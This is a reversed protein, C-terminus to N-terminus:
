PKRKLFSPQIMLNAFFQYINFGQAAFQQSLDTDACRDEARERKTRRRERITKRVDKEITPLFVMLKAVEEDSLIKSLDDLRKLRADVLDRENRTFDKILQKLTAGEPSEGELEEKM